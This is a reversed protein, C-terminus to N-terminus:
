NPYKIRQGAAVYQTRVPLSRIGQKPGDWNDFWIFAVIALVQPDEQAKAFFPAIDEGFAGGPVLLIRQESRLRAKMDRWTGNSLVASHRDYDDFGVWDYTEIGPWEGHATYIVALPIGAIFPFDAAVRRLMANTSRVESSSRGVLDPEDVPYLACIRSDILGGRQLEAFFARVGEEGQYAMPVDLVVCPIAAQRAEALRLKVAQLGDGGAGWPSVWQLTVHDATEAVQGDMSGYYGYLLGARSAQPAAPPASAPAPATTDGNCGALIVLSAIASAIASLIRKM